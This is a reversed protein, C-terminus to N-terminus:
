NNNIYLEKQIAQRKLDSEESWDFYPNYINFKQGSIVLKQRDIDLPYTKFNISSKIVDKYREFIDQRRM